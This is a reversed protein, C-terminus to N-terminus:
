LGRKRLNFDKFHLAVNELIQNGLMAIITNKEGLNFPM